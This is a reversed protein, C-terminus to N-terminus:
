AEAKKTVCGLATMDPRMVKAGFVHLARVYDGFQKEHRGAEVTMIQEAVSWSRGEIGAMLKANTGASVESVNNSQYFNFGFARGIFGNTFSTVNDTLTNISALTLKAELWAPIIVFRGQKPLNAKTMLEYMNIFYDDVNASNVEIPTGSTGLTSDQIGAQASLGAIYQDLNDALAYGIESTITGMFNVNSQTQDIDDITLPVTKAQDITLFKQADQLQKYSIDTYQTYTEVSPRLIENVKVTTGFALNGQFDRNGLQAYVLGKQLAVDINTSWIEPKFNNVSM